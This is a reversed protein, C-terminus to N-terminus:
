SIILHILLTIVMFPSLFFSVGIKSYFLVEYTRVTDPNMKFNKRNTHLIGIGSILTILYVILHLWFNLQMGSVVPVMLIAISRINIKINLNNRRWGRGKGEIGGKRGREKGGERGGERGGKRGRERM